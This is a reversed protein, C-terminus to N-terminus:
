DTETGDTFIHCKYSDKKKRKVLKSMKIWHGEKFYHYIKKIKKEKQQGKLSM